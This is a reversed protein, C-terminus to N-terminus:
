VHEPLGDVHCHSLLHLPQLQLSHGQRDELLLPVQLVRPSPTSPSTPNNSSSPGGQPCLPLLGGPPSPLPSSSTWRTGWGGAENSTSWAPRGRSRSGPAPSPRRWPRLGDAVVLTLNYRRWLRVPLDWHSVVDEERTLVVARGECRSWHTGVRDPAGGEEGWSWTSGTWSRSTGGGGAGPDLAQRQVERGVRAPPPVQARAEGRQAVGGGTRV